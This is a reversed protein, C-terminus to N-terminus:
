EPLALLSGFYLDTEELLNSDFGGDPYFTIEGFYIRGDVNYLDVRAFPHGESLRRALDFMKDIGEPAPLTFDAPAAKGRINYRRLRWDEDFFYFKPDGKERDICLMVSDVKGNFCFFKYDTPNEGIYEEAFVRPTIGKYPWERWDTWASKRMAKRLKGVAGARDFAERDNCVAVGLNGGSHNAKIVFKEPLADFDIQAPDDWVGLTPIVYEEGIMRAIHEKVAIKDVLTHQLPQRNHIKLWQLKDNFKVPNDLPLSRGMQIRFVGRLYAGDPLWGFLKRFGYCAVKRAFPLQSM